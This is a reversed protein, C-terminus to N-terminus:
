LRVCKTTSHLRGSSWGARAESAQCANRVEPGVDQKPERAGQAILNLTDQLKATLSEAGLDAVGIVGCCFTVAESDGSKGERTETQLWEQNRFNKLLKGSM